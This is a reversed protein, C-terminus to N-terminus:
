PCGRSLDHQPAILNLFSFGYCKQKKRTCLYHKKQFYVIRIKSSKHVSLSYNPCFM